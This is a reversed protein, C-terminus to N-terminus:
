DGYYYHRKEAIYTGTITCRRCGSYGGATTLGIESHARSDATILLPLVRLTPFDNVGEDCGKFFVEEGDIYLDEIEKLLPIFFADYKHPADKPLQSVPIFSFVRANSADCRDAKTMCAHTVTIAAISHRASM